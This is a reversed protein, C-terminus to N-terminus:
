VGDARLSVSKRSSTAFGCCSRKSPECTLVRQLRPAWCATILHIHIGIGVCQEQLTNAPVVHVSVCCFLGLTHWSNIVVMTAHKVVLGALSAGMDNGQDDWEYVHDNPEFRVDDLVPLRTPTGTHARYVRRTSRKRM